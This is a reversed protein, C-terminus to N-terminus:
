NGQKAVHVNVWSFQTKWNTKGIETLKRRIEETFYTHINSKKLFGTDKKQRHRHHCDQRRNTPKRYVRTSESNSASRSSKQHMDKKVQLKSM